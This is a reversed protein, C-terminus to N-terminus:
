LRVGRRWCRQPRRRTWRGVSRECRAPWELSQVAPALWVPALWV